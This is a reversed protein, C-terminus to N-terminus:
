AAREEPKPGITSFRFVHPKNGQGEGLPCGEWVELAGREVCSDAANRVTNRHWGLEEVVDRVAFLGVPGRTQELHELLTRDRKDTRKDTRQKPQLHLWPGRRYEFDHLGEPNDPSWPEWNRGMRIHDDIGIKWRDESGLGQAVAEEASLYPPVLYRVRVGHRRLFIVCRDTFFRVEGGNVFV